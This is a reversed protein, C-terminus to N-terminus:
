QEVWASISTVAGATYGYTQRWTTVGDTVEVYNLTGDGNYTLAWPLTNPDVPLDGGGASQVLLVDDYSALTKPEGTVRDRASIM